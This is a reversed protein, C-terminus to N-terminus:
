DRGWDPRYDFRQSTSIELREDTGYETTWIQVGPTFLSDGKSLVQSLWRDHVEYVSATAPDPHRAM